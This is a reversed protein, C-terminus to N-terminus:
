RKFIDEDSAQDDQNYNYYKVKKGLAKVNAREDTEVMHKLVSDGIVMFPRDSTLVDEITDIPDDYETKM